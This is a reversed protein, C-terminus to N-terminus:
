KDPRDPYLDDITVLPRYPAGDTAAEIEDAGGALRDVVSLVGVVKLGHDKVREIAQITSKGTTVVDDVVLCKMGKEVPGEVWKQLGHKKREKRVVFGVVDLNQDEAIRLVSLAVPDAGMTLGGVAEAACAKAVVGVHEGVLRFVDPRYIAKKVDVYYTSKQGNSLEVDQHILAHQILQEVLEKNAISHETAVPPM